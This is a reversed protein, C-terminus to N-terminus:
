GSAASSSDSVHMKSQVLSILDGILFPKQLVPVDNGLGLEETVSMHGGGTMLILQVSPNKTRLLKSLAIGDMDPLMYDVLALTVPHEDCCNLAAEASAATKLDWRESSLVTKFYKLLEANDDVILLVPQEPSPVPQRATRVRLDLKSSTQDVGVEVSSGPPILDEAVM